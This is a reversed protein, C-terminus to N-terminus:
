ATPVIGVDSYTKSTFNTKSIVVDFLDTNAYDDTDVYFIFYGSSDATVVAGSLASGGSKAAYIVAATTTDALYCTVTASDIVRGNGDTAHGQYAYRAMVGGESALISCCEKLTLTKRGFVNQGTILTAM